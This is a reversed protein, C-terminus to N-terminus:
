KTSGFGSLTHCALGKTTYPPPPYHLRRTSSRGYKNRYRIPGIKKKKKKERSTLSDLELRRGWQRERM